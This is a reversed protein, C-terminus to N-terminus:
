LSIHALIWGTTGIHQIHASNQECDYQRCDDTCKIFLISNVFRVVSSYYEIISFAWDFKTCIQFVSQTVFFSLLQEVYTRAFLAFPSTLGTYRHASACVLLIRSSKALSRWNVFELFFVAQVFTESHEHIHTTKEKMRLGRNWVVRSMIFSCCVCMYRYKNEYKNQVRNERGNKLPSRECECVSERAGADCPM